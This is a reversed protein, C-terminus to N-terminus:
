ILNLRRAKEVAATKNKVDLKRYNETAHYKVTRETIYLEQAIQRSSKGAAQLRLVMLATETFDSRGLQETGLYAPYHEAVAETERELLDFWAANATETSLYASRIKKLLPLIAAGEECIVRVLRYEQALELANLLTEKWDEGQREQVIALLIGTEIRIYPRNSYEAYYQLRELLIAARHIENQSLYCRIKTLYRYREMACFEVTEDPAEAMWADIEESNGMMLAMRCRLAHINLILQLAGELKAHKEFGDLLQRANASNGRLMNLRCQLGVAAFSLEIAGCGEAEMQGRTLYSLVDYDKAAKEYQSEGLALNTLGRGHRGLLKELPKGISDALVRDHKSWHCFDKGGNMTSPLNSTVSIEPLSVGSRTVSFIRKLIEVLGRSGRHPLVIDLWLLRADAEAKEGGKAEKAYESLRQYWYESEESNLLMSYLLSMTSMLIASTGIEEPSLATYYRRLAFHYGMGPHRRGNRILLNRINSTSGSREYMQLASLVDNHMEYYLGAREACQRLKVTGIMKQARRRLADLLEPRISYIRDTRTLFNGVTMAQELMAASQDDGTITEAMSLTFSDVVSVMMLFEQLAPSWQSIIQNDLFSEFLDAIKQTLASNLAQGSKMYNLTTNIVYGNGQGTKALYEKEEETLTVGQNAALMGIERSSLHLAEEPIVTLLCEAMLPQLWCPTSSRGILILWIDDRRALKLVQERQKDNDLLHLNDFVVCLTSKRGAKQLPTLDWEDDGGQYWLAKSQCLFQRVLMTKGYGTAGYLYVATKLGHAFQLKRYAEPTPVYDTQM